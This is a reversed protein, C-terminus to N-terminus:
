IFLKNLDIKSAKLINSNYKKTDTWVVDVSKFIFTSWFTRWLSAMSSANKTGYLVLWDFFM